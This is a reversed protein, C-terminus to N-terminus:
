DFYANVRLRIKDILKMEVEENYIDAAVVSGYINGLYFIGGIAAFIWGKASGPGDDHFGTYAEWGLIATSTFSSLADFPRGCYLKGLGPLVTSYIGALAMSKGPRRRAADAFVRLERTFADRDATDALFGAAAQWRGEMMCDVSALQRSREGTRVASLEAAHAALFDRSGRFDDALYRCYATQLLAEPVLASGPRTPILLFYEIARDFDGTRRYGRAVRFWVEDANSPPADFGFLYRQYEGIARRYDGQRYLHDAFLLVNGPHFYEVNLTDAARASM